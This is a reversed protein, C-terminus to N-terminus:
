IKLTTVFCFIKFIFIVFREFSVFLFKIQRALILLYKSITRFFSCIKDQFRTNMLNNFEINQQWNKQIYIKQIFLLINFIIQLVALGYERVM